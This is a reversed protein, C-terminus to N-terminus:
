EEGQEGCREMQKRWRDLLRSSNKQDGHVMMATSMSLYANANSTCREEESMRVVGGPFPAKCPSVPASKFASPNELFEECLRRLDHRLQAKMIARKKGVEELSIAEMSEEYWTYWDTTQALASSSIGIAILLLLYRM